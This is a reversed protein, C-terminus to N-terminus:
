NQTSAQLNARTQDFNSKEGQMVLTSDKYSDECLTDLESIASDFAVKMVAAAEDAKGSNKLAQGLSLADKLVKPHTAHLSESTAQEVVRKLVVKSKQPARKLKEEQRKFVVKEKIM